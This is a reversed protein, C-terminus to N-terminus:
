GCCGLSGMARRECVRFLMTYASGFRLGISKYLDYFRDNVYDFGTPVGPIYLYGIRPASDEIEAEIDTPAM